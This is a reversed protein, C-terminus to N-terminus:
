RFRDKRIRNVKTSRTILFTRQIVTIVYNYFNQSRPSLRSSESALSVPKPRVFVSNWNLLLEWVTVAGACPHTGGRTSQIDAHTAVISTLLARGSVFGDFHTWGVTCVVKIHLPEGHPGTASRHNRSSGSMTFSLFQADFASWSTVVIRLKEFVASLIDADSTSVHLTAIIQNWSLVIRILEGVQEHHLAHCACYAALFFTPSETIRMKFESVLSDSPYHRELANLFIRSGSNVVKRTFHTVM